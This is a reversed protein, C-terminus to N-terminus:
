SLEVEDVVRYRPVGEAQTSSEFLCVRNVEWVQPIEMEYLKGIAKAMEIREGRTSEPEVRSLTVHPVFPKHDYGVGVQDLETRLRRVLRGLAGVEGGLRLYIVRPLALTPSERLRVRRMSRGHVREGYRESLKQRPFSNVGKFRLWFKEYSSIRGLVERVKRVERRGATAKASSPVEGLFAGTVHLDELVNWRVKWHKKKLVDMVGKAGRKAEENLPMGIFLRHPLQTTIM